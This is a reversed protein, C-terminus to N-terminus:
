ATTWGLHVAPYGSDGGPHHGSHRRHHRRDARASPEEPVEALRPSRGAEPVAHRSGLRTKDIHHVDVPLVPGPHAQRTWAGRAPRRHHGPESLREQFRVGPARAGPRGAGPPGALLGRRVPRASRLSDAPTQPPHLGSHTTRRGTDEPSSVPERGTLSTHSYSNGAAM